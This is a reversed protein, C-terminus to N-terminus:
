SVRARDSGFHEEMADVLGAITHVAATAAVSLGLGAATATTVPGISCLATHSLLETAREGLLQVLQEVTSSSTLMVADVRQDTLSQALEAARESSAPVTRYAPVVDVAVGAERLTDPLVERAVLARPLLVKRDAPETGLQVLLAEALSEAVHRAPVLDAVLGHPELAQATGPGIDAIRAPGFARADLGARELEAWLGQVGNASTFVVWDYEGLRGAAQRLPEIEEPPAIEITAWPIGQAGRARLLEVAAQAQHSPRAVLVRKGSLPQREYWGLLPAREVTPGVLLVAPGALEVREAQSCLEQLPARVTRQTPESAASVVAAPTAGDFGARDILGRCLAALNREAGLVCLTGAVSCLDDLDSPEGSEPPVRIATWREALGMETLPVGALAAAAQPSSIGPVVQFPVNAEAIARALAVGRSFLYPDGGHLRLASRGARAAAILQEAVRQHHDDANPGKARRTGISRVEADHRCLALLEAAIPDSYLVLDASALLDAGRRTILGPDGPGAGVLYV